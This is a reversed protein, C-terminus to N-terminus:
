LDDGSDDEVASARDTAPPKEPAIVVEEEEDDDDALLANDDVSVTNSPSAGSGAQRANVRKLEEEYSFPELPTTVFIPISGFGNASVRRNNQADTRLMVVSLIRSKEGYRIMWPPIMVPLGIDGEFDTISDDILTFRGWPFRSEKSSVARIPTDVITGEFIYPNKREELLAGINQIEAPKYNDIVMDAIDLIDKKNGTKQPTSLMTVLYFTGCENEIVWDERKEAGNRRMSARVKAKIEDGIELDGLKPFNGTQVALTLAPSFEEGDVSKLSGYLLYTYSYEIQGGRNRPTGEPTIDVIVGNFEMPKLKKEAIADSKFAGILASWFTTYKGREYFRKLSAYPQYEPPLEEGHIIKDAIGLIENKVEDRSKNGMQTIADIGGILIEKANDDSQYSKKLEESVM